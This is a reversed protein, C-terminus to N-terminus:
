IKWRGRYSKYAEQESVQLDLGKDILMENIKKEYSCLYTLDDKLLLSNDRGPLNNDTTFHKEIAM